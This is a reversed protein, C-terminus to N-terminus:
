PIAALARRDHAPVIKLEPQAAMLAHVHRLHGRVQAEDWDALSRPLWPREAPWEVGELTWALDGILAFRGGAGPLTVFVIVSGPTHGPVPVAVVSGDGFFDHSSDFGLYPGGDLAYTEIRADFSRILASEDAGSAIFDREAATVLVPVGPFDAVGSAHDWHAHTLVIGRLAGPAIGRAALQEIAPTDKRHSSLKQGIWPTTLVHRDVDRGFGADVLLNGRPHEILIPAMAFEMEAGLSGGRVALGHRSAIAGTHLVTMRLEQPPHAEPREFTWRGPADPALRVPAFTWALLALAIVLLLGFAKVIKRIM